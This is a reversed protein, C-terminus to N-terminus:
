RGLVRAGGSSSAVRWFSWKGASGTVTSRSPLAPVVPVVPAGQPVCRGRSASSLLAPLQRRRQCTGRSRGPMYLANAGARRRDFDSASQEGHGGRNNIYRAGLLFPGERPPLLRGVSSFLARPSLALAGRGERRSLREKEPSVGVRRKGPREQVRRRLIGASSPIRGTETSWTATQLSLKPNPTPATRHFKQPPNLTRCFGSFNNQILLLAQPDLKILFQNQSVHSLSIM